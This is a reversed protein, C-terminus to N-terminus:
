VQKVFMNSTDAMVHIVNELRRRWECISRDLFAQPLLMDSVVYGNGHSEALGIPGSRTAERDGTWSEYEPRGGRNWSLIIKDSLVMM